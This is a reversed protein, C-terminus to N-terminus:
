SRVLSEQAGRLESAQRKSKKDSEGLKIQPDAVTNEANVVVDAGEKLKRSAKFAKKILEKIKKQSPVLKNELDIVSASAKKAEFLKDQSDRLEKRM